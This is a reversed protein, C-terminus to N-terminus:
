APRDVRALWEKLAKIVDQRDGNSMYALHGPGSGELSFLFLSFGIGPPMARQLMEALERAKRETALRADREDITEKISM